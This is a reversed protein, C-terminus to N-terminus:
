RARIPTTLNRLSAGSRGNLQALIESTISLAIEAADGGGLDLGAPGFYADPVDGLQQEILERRQHQVVRSGISGVYAAGVTLAGTVLPVDLKSDHACAVVTDHSSVSMETLMQEPWLDCIAGAPEDPVDGRTAAQIGLLSLSADLFAHRPDALVWRWGLRRAQSVLEVAVDGSGGIIMRPAPCWEIDLKLQHEVHSWAVREETHDAQGTASSRAAVESGYAHTGVLQWTRNVRCANGRVLMTAAQNYVAALANDAREVIVTLTAGCVPGVRGLDDRTMELMLASPGHDDLVVRAAELVEVEACGGSLGGTWHSVGPAIALQAGLGRPASSSTHVVTALAADDGDRTWDTLANAIQIRQHIGM